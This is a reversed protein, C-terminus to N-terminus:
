PPPPPPRPPPAFPAGHDDGAAVQLLRDVDEEVAGRARGEAALAHLRLVGVAGAAGKGGGNGGVEGEAALEVVGDHQGLGVHALGNFPAVGDALALPRDVVEVALLVALQRVRMGHVGRGFAGGVPPPLAGAVGKGGWCVAWRAGESGAGGGASPGAWAM